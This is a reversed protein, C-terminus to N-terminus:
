TPMALSKRRSSTILAHLREIFQQLCISVLTLIGPTVTCAAGITFMWLWHNFLLIFFKVFFDISAQTTSPYGSTSKCMPILWYGALSPKCLNIWHQGYVFGIPAIFVTLMSAHVLMINMKILLPTRKNEGIDPLVSDLRFITNFLFTIEEPKKTLERVFGQGIVLVFLSLWSLVSEMPNDNKKFICQIAVVITLLAAIYYRWALRFRALEQDKLSVKQLNPNYKIRLNRLSYALQCLNAFLRPHQAIIM